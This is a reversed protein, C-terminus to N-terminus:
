YARGTNAKRFSPTITPLLPSDKAFRGARGPTETRVFSAVSNPLVVQTAGGVRGNAGAVMGTPVPDIGKANNAKYFTVVPPKSTRALALSNANANLNPTM